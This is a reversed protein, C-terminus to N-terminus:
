RNPRAPADDAEPAAPTATRQTGGGLVPWDQEDAKTNRDGSSHGYERPEHGVRGEDAADGDADARNADAGFREGPHQEPQDSYDDPKRLEGKRTDVDARGHPQHLKSM